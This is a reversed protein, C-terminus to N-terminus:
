HNKVMLIAKPSDVQQESKLILKKGSQSRVFITKTKLSAQKMVYRDGM